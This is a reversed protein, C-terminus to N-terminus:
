DALKWVGIINGNEDRINGAYHQRELNDAIERLIDACALHPYDTDKESFAPSNTKFNLSFM